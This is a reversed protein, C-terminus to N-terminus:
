AYFPVLFAGCRPHNSGQPYLAKLPKISPILCRKAQPYRWSHIGVFSVISATTDSSIRILGALELKSLIGRVKKRTIGWESALRNESIQTQGPQVVQPRRFSTDASPSLKMRGLLDYFLAQNCITHQDDVNTTGGLWQVAMPTFRIQISKVQLKLTTKMYM